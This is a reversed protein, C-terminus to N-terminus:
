IMLSIASKLEMDFERDVTRYFLSGLFLIFYPNFAKDNDSSFSIDLDYPTNKKRYRGWIVPELTGNM